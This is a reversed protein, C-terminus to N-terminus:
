SVQFRSSIFNAEDLWALLISLGQSPITLLLILLFILCAAAHCRPQLNHQLMFLRNKIM